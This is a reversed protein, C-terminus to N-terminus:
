PLLRDIIQNFINLLLERDEHSLQQLKLELDSVEEHLIFNSEIGLLYDVPISLANSLSLM